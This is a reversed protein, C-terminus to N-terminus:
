SRRPDAMSDTSSSRPLGAQAPYSRSLQPTASAGANLKEIVQLALGCFRRALEIPVVVVDITWSWGSRLDEQRWLAFARDKGDELLVAALQDKPGIEVQLLVGADAATLEHGTESKALLPALDRLLGAIAARAHTPVRLLWARGDQERFAEFVLEEREPRLYVRFEGYDSIPERTLLGEAM